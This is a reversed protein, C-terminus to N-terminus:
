RTAERVVKKDSNESIHLVCGMFMSAGIAVACIVKNNFISAKTLSIGTYLLYTPVSAYAAVKTIDRTKPGLSLLYSLAALPLINTLRECVPSPCTSEILKAALPIYVALAAAFGAMISLVGYSTPHRSESSTTASVICGKTDSVIKVKVDKYGMGSLVNTVTSESPMHNPHVLIDTWILLNHTKETCSKLSFNLNKEDKM